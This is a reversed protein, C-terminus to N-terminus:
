DANSHGKNLLRHAHRVAGASTRITWLEDDLRASPNVAFPELAAELEAIRAEAAEARAHTERAEDEAKMARNFMGKLKKGFHGLGKEDAARVWASIDGSSWYRAVEAKAWDREAKVRELEEAQSQLRASAVAMAELILDDDGARDIGMAM